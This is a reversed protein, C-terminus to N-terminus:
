VFVQIKDKLTSFKKTRFKHLLAPRHAGEMKTEKTEQLFDLAKIRKRFNRKDLEKGLVVEYLTQLESLTFKDPLLQAAINTTQIDYRLEQLCDSLIMNHDFALTKIDEVPIWEAVLADTDAKLKFKESDILAIYVVTVVRGRPDRSVDGYANLKKMFINKVGTEEELERAAADELNENNEVFGGPIAYQGKFPDYKRRILLLNLEGQIVTFVAVDAALKIKQKSSGM